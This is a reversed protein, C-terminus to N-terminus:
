GEGEKPLKIPLGALLHRKIHSELGGMASAVVEVRIRFIREHKRFTDRGRSSVTKTSLNLTYCEDAAV